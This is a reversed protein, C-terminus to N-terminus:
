KPLLRYVKVNGTLSGGFTITFTTLNTTTDTTHHANMLARGQYNANRLSCDSRIKRERGYACKIVTEISVQNTNGSGLFGDGLLPVGSSDGNVITPGSPSDNWVLGLGQWGSSLNSTFTPSATVAIAGEIVILYEQDHNGDLGSLTLSSQATLNEDYLIEPIRHGRPTPDTMTM